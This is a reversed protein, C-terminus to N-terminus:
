PLEVVIGPQAIQIANSLPEVLPFLSEYCSNQAHLVIVCLSSNRLSQKFILNSDITVFVDFQDKMLNLLENDPKGAWGQRPVTTVAHLHLDKLLRRPLCEDLIVKM